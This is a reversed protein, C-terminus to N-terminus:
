RRDLDGCRAPPPAGRGDRPGDRRPARHGGPRLRPGGPPGPRGGARRARPEFTTARGARRRMSRSPQRPDGVGRRACRHGRGAGRCRRRGPDDRRDHHAAGHRRRGRRRAVRGAPVEGLVRCCWRDIGRRGPWTPAACPSATWRATSDVTAARLASAVPEALVLGAVDALGVMEAPLPVVGDLVRRQAEELPILDPLDPVPREQAPAAFPGRGDAYRRRRALGPTRRPCMPGPYWGQVGWRCATHVRGLPRTSGGRSPDIHSDDARSLGEPVMEGLWSQGPSQSIHAISAFASAAADLWAPILRGTPIGSRTAQTSSIAASVVGSRTCQHSPESSSYAARHAPSTSAPVKVGSLGSSRGFLKRARESGLSTARTSSRVYM